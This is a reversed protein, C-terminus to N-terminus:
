MVLALRGVHIMFHTGKNHRTPDSCTRTSLKVGFGPSDDRVGPLALSFPSLLESMKFNVNWDSRGEIRAYQRNSKM